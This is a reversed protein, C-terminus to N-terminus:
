LICFKNMCLIHYNRNMILLSNIDFYNKSYALQNVPQVTEGHVKQRRIWWIYWATTIIVERLDAYNKDLPNIFKCMMLNDLIASGSRDIVCAEEIINSLGMKKWIEKAGDCLFLTQRIYECSKSCLPCYSNVKIHRNALAGLNKTKNKLSEFENLRGCTAENDPRIQVDRIAAPL